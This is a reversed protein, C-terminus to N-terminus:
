PVAPELLDGLARAAVPRLGDLADREHGAAVVVRQEGRLGFAVGDPRRRARHAGRDDPRAGGRRALVPRMRAVADAASVDGDLLVHVQIPDGADFVDAAATLFAVARELEAAGAVPIAVAHPRDGLERRDRTRAAVPADGFPIRLASDFGAAIRAPDAAAVSQHTGAVAAPNTRSRRTSATFWRMTAACWPYGAARLKAVLDAIGRRTPGFAPDIGGVAHLAERAIALVPTVASDIPELRHAREIRRREALAQLQTLDAYNVDVVGEGGTAGPVAPFAAGLAPIRTFADRLRDLAAAPILVDDAVLVILERDASGLARNAGDSLLPDGADTEIRLQPVRGPHTPDDAVM